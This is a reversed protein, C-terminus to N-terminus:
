PLEIWTMNAPNWFFQQGTDPNVSIKYFNIPAPPVPILGADTQDTMLISTNDASSCNIVVEGGCCQTERKCCGSM